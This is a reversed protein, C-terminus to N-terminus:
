KFRFARPEDNWRSRASPARAFLSAPGCPPPCPYGATVSSDLSKPPKRLLSLRQIGAKAPMVASLLHWELRVGIKAFRANYDAFADVLLEAAQRAFPPANGEVRM